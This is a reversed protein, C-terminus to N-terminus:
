AGLVATEWTGRPKSGTEERPVCASVTLASCASFSAEPPPAATPMAVRHWFGTGQLNQVM